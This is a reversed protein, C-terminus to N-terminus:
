RPAAPRTAMAQATMPAPVGHLQFAHWAVHRALVGTWYEWDHGGPTEHYDHRYGLTLLQAAFARSAPAWRDGKGVAVLFRLHRAAAFRSAALHLASNAKWAERNEEPPGLRNVLAGRTRALTLDLVGSITSVSVFASPHKLALTAAGHGGMSLGAIARRRAVPLRREVDPVLEHMLYSEIRAGPVRASDLYWGDPDGDCAVIVIRHEAALRQLQDHAHEPWDTWAGGAGHLLYLVPMREDAAATRPVYALYSTRKERARSELDLRVAGALRDDRPLLRYQRELRWAIREAAFRAGLRTYHVGDPLRMLGTEGRWSVEVRYQGSEDAALDWTTLHRGGAATTARETVVNLREVRQSFRPSQMVPLGVVVADAGRERIPRVLAEVRRGYEADWEVTGFTAARGRGLELRQADNGGLQIVVLDPRFAAMRRAIEKPWDLIDPRALGTGLKGFREVSVGRYAEFRRELEAGLHYQISSAGVVLVREVPPAISTRAAADESSERRPAERAAVAQVAPARQLIVAPEFLPRTAGDVAERAALVGIREAARELAAAADAASTFDSLWESDALFARFDRAGYLALLGATVWAGVVVAAPPASRLVRAAPLRATTAVDTTM